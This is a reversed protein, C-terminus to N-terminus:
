DVGLLGMTEAVLEAPAHQGRKLSLWKKLASLARDEKSVPFFTEQLSKFSEPNLQLWKTYGVTTRIQISVGYQDVPIIRTMEEKYYNYNDPMTNEKGINELSTYALM